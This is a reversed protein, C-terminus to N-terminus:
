AHLSQGHGTTQKGRGSSTYNTKAFASGHLPVVLARVYLTKMLCSNNNPDTNVPHYM